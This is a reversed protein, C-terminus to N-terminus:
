KPTENSAEKQCKGEAVCADWVAVRNNFDDQRSKEVAEPTTDAGTLTVIARILADQEAELTKDTKYAIIVEGPAEPRFKVTRVDIQKYATPDFDPLPVPPLAALTHAAVNYVGEAAGSNVMVQAGTSVGLAHMPILLSGAALVTGLVKRVGVHGTLDRPDGQSIVFRTYYADQVKTFQAYDAPTMVSAKSVHFFYLDSNVLKTGLGTLTAEVGQAIPDNGVSQFVTPSGRVFEGTPAIADYSVRRKSVSKLTSELTSSDGSWLDVPRVVIVHASDTDFVIPAAQCAGANLIMTTAMLLARTNLSKSM